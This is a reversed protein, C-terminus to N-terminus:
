KKVFFRHCDTEQATTARTIKAHGLCRVKSCINEVYFCYKGRIFCNTEEQQQM